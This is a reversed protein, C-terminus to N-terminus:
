IGGLRKSSPLLDRRLLTENYGARHYADRHESFKEVLARIVPPANSKTISEPKPM